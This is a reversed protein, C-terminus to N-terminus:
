WIPLAPIPKRSVRRRRAPVLLGLVTALFALSAPEPVPVISFHFEGSADGTPATTFFRTEAAYYLEYEHGALLVGSGAVDLTGFPPGLDFNGGHDNDIVVLEYKKPDTTDIVNFSIGTFGEASDPWAFQWTGWGTVTSDVAPVFHIRGEAFTFGELQRAYQTMDVGFHATHAIWSFDHDVRSFSAGQAGMLTEQYPNQVSDSWEFSQGLSSSVGSDLYWSNVVLDGFAPMSAYALAVSVVTVVPAVPRM